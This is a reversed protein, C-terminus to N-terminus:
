MADLRGPLKSSKYQNLEAMKTELFFDTNKLREVLGQTVAKDM